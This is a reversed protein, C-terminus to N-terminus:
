GEWARTLNEETYVTRLVREVENPPIGSGVLRSLNEVLALQPHDPPAALTPDWISPREASATGFTGSVPTPAGGRAVADLAAHARDLAVNAAAGDGLLYAALAALGAPAAALEDPASRTLLEWVLRMSEPDHLTSLVAEDRPRGSLLDILADAADDVSVEEGGATAQVLRRLPEGVTTILDHLHEGSMTHLRHAVQSALPEEAAVAARLNERSALPSRVGHVAAEASVASRDPPDWTMGEPPCCASDTCELSVFRSGTVLIQDRVTVGGGTFTAAAARISGVAAADAWGVLAVVEPRVREILGPVVAGWVASAQGPEPLDVRVTAKSRLRTAGPVADFFVVVLSDEPVFGVLHPISEVLARPSELRIVPTPV